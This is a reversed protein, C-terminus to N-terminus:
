RKTREHNRRPASYHRALAALATRLMLKASRAPWQREREVETLGKLFCCVDLLVGSLEPGVDALAREVRLRASLTAESMEAAGGPVGSQRGLRVPEWRQGLSPQMQGRTFDARLREGAEVQSPDLFLTGDRAKIRALAALPSEDANVMMQGQDPDSRSLLTRHQDQFASDPDSLWRKLAARGEPTPAYAHLAPNAGAGQGMSGAPGAAQDVQSVIDTLLGRALAAKLLNADVERRSGDSRELTIRGSRAAPLPGTAEGRVLFGVLGALAKRSHRAESSRM